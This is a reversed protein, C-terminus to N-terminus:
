AELIDDNSDFTHDEVPLDYLIESHIEGTIVSLIFQTSQVPHHEWEPGRGASALVTWGEPRGDKSTLWYLYAGTGEIYAFPLLGAGAAELQVPRPEPGIEWLRGLIEAREEKIALLDYDRDACDPELVWITEDFVGGGYTDVLDKFDEPLVTGLRTEVEPWARRDREAPPPVIRTLQEVDPHM